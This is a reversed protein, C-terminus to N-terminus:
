VRKRSPTGSCPLSTLLQRRRCLRVRPRKPLAFVSRSGDRVAETAVGGIVSRQLSMAAGCWLGDWLRLRTLVPEEPFMGYRPHMSPQQCAPQELQIPTSEAKKTDFLICKPEHSACSVPARERPDHFFLQLNRRWFTARKIPLVVQELECVFILGSLIPAVDDTISVNTRCLAWV